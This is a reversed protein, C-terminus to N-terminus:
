HGGSGPVVNLILDDPVNRVAYMAVVFAIIGIGVGAISIYLFISPDWLIFESVFYCLIVYSINCPGIFWGGIKDTLPM